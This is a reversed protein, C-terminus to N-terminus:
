EAETALVVDVKRGALAALDIREEFWRRDHRTAAPNVTLTLGRGDVV